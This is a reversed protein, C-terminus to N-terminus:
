PRTSELRTRRAVLKGKRGPHGLPVESEIQGVSSLEVEGFRAVGGIDATELHCPVLAVARVEALRGRKDREVRAPGAKAGPHVLDPQLNRVLRGALTPEESTERKTVVASHQAEDWSSEGVQRLSSM